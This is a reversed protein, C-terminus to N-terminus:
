ALRPSPPAPYFTGEWQLSWGPSLRALGAALAAADPGWLAEQRRPDSADWALWARALADERQAQARADLEIGLLALGLFVMGGLRYENVVWVSQLSEQTLMPWACWVGLGVGLTGIVQLVGIDPNPERRWAVSSRAGAQRAAWRRVAFWEEPSRAHRVGDFVQDPNAARWAECAQEWAGARQHEGWGVIALGLVLAVIWLGGGLPGQWLLASSGLAVWGIALIWLALLGHGLARWRLAVAHSPPLFARVQSTLLAPASDSM